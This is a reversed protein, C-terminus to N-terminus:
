AQGAQKLLSGNKKEKEKKEKKAAGNWGLQGHGLRGGQAWGWTYLKGDNTLACSHFKAAVLLKVDSGTLSDVRTPADYIDDTGTGIQYNSGNGWGWVDQWWSSSSHFPELEESILDLPTRGQLM